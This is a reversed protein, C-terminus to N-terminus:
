KSILPIDKRHKGHMVSDHSGHFALSPTPVIMKVQMARFKKTLQHGVGSSKIPSDFWQKPVEDITLKELTHRNTLFGCDVFGVESFKYSGIEFPPQNTKFEGWCDKRGDNSLNVAFLNNDWGQMTLQKIMDLDYNKFDDPAFLFYQEDSDKCYEVAFKWKKWFNEKGSWDEDNGLILDGGIEKDTNALM